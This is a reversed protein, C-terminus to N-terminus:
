SQVALLGVRGVEVLFFVCQASRADARLEPREPDVESGSRHPAPGPPRRGRPRRKGLAAHMQAASAGPAASRPTCTGRRVRVSLQESGLRPELRRRFTLRSRQRPGRRSASWSRPRSSTRAHSQQEGQPACCGRAHRGCSALFVLVPLARSSPLLRWTGIWSRVRPSAM